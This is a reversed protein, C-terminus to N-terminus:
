RDLNTVPGPPSEEEVVQHVFALKEVAKPSLVFPYTDPVGMSRSLSNLAITLPVWGSMLDEFSHLDLRRAAVSPGPVTPRISLGFARATEVTDVMHLYHAWTEAWDEWPHMSAYQSVFNDSWNGTADGYHQQKAEEYDVREDGFLARFRKLAPRDKILRDWYYHGIEHRFHGLLTRYTEGLEVRMKERFPDDAEAINITILGDSHGTWVKQEGADKMFDFALGAPNAESRAEIPLGLGNLSYIVRRKAAELRAWAERAGPESLNPIVRNLRCAQCLGEPGAAAFEAEPIAWNCVNHEIGNACLHYRAGEAAPTLATWARGDADQDLGSMLDRDPLYALRFGDRTCQTSEFFLLQLCRHCSFLKM